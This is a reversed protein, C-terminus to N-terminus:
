VLTLLFKLSLSLLSSSPSSHLLSRKALHKITMDLTAIRHTWRHDAEVSCILFEGMVVPLIMIAGAHVCFNHDSLRPLTTYRLPQTRIKKKLIM